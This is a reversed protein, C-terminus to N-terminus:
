PSSLVELAIDTSERLARRRADWVSKARCIVGYKENDSVHLLPYGKLGLKSSFHNFTSTEMEVGGISEDEAVLKLVHDIGHLVAPVSVIKCEVYAMERAELNERIRSRIDPDLKIVRKRSDDITPPGAMDVVLAPIVLRGIPLDKAYMSGIFFARTCGGERLLQLVELAISGGYVNFVVLYEEGRSKAFTHKVWSGTVRPWSDFLVRVVDKRAPLYAGGYLICGQPLNRRGFVSKSFNGM